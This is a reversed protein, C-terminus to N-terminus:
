KSITMKKTLRNGNVIVSYFYVGANLSNTNLEITHTGETKNGEFSSTIVKGTVDMVEFSVTNANELAYKITTVNSTPNPYNQFLQAGNELENIGATQTNTQKINFLIYPSEFPNVDGNNNTIDQLNNSRWHAAFYNNASYAGFSYLVGGCTFENPEYPPPNNNGNDFSRWTPSFWNANVGFTDTAASLIRGSKYTIESILYGLHGTIIENVDLELQLTTSDAASNAFTVWNNPDKLFIKDLPFKIEAITNEIKKDAKSYRVAIYDLTDGTADVGKTSDYHQINFAQTASPVAIRVVLTDITNTDVWDYNFVAFLSDITFPATSDFPEVNPNFWTSKYHYGNLHILSYTSYIGATDAEVVNNFEYSQHINSDSTIAGNVMTVVTNDTSYFGSYVDQYSVWRSINTTRNINDNSFARMNTMTRKSSLLEKQTFSNVNIMLFSIFLLLYKKKMHINKNNQIFLNVFFIAQSYECAM